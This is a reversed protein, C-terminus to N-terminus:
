HKQPNFREDVSILFRGDGDRWRLWGSITLDVIVMAWDGEVQVVRLGSERSLQALTPASDAPEGRLQYFGKKLGPLLRASRGKLFLPWPTYEWYRPPTLWGERDADDYIIRLWKGKQRTVTALHEGALPKLVPALGPLHGAAPEAVRGMGPEAYLVLTASAEPPSPAFPRISLVGIGTLPRPRAPAAAAPLALLVLLLWATVFRSM